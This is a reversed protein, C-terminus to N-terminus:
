CRGRWRPKLYNNALGNVYKDQIVITGKGGIANLVVGNWALLGALTVVFSPVGVKAVFTGQLLGIAIGAAIAVAIAAFTPWGGQGDTGPQLLLAAVVGGIGSVFGISLDIEGLLLIFVVGMGIVTIAAMQAILNVFNGATLFQSNKLQFYIAIGVIGVAIPFRGLDGSRVGVWWNRVYAGLGADVPPPGPVGPLQSPQATTSM